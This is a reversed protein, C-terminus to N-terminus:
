EASDGGQRALYWAGAVLMLVTLGAYLFFGVAEGALAHLIAWFTCWLMLLTGAVCGLLLVVVRLM